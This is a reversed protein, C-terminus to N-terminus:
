LFVQGYVLLIQTLCFRVIRKDPSNGPAQLLSGDKQCGGLLSNERVVGPGAQSGPTLFFLLLRPGIWPLAAVRRMGLCAFVLCLTCIM